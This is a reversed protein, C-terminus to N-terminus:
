AAKGKRGDGDADPLDEASRWALANHEECYPHGPRRPERCFRFDPHRPDGIPWSCQGPPHSRDIELAQTSSQTRSTESM